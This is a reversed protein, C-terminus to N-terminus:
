NNFIIIIMIKHCSFMNEKCIQIVIKGKNNELM